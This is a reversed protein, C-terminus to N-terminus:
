HSLVVSSDSLVWDNESVCNKSAREEGGAMAETYSCWSIRVVVSVVSDESVRAHWRASSGSEEGHEYTGLGNLACEPGVKGSFGDCGAGSTPYVRSDLQRWCHDGGLTPASGAPSPGLAPSASMFWAETGGDGVRPISCAWLQFEIRRLTIPRVGKDTTAVSALVDWVTGPEGVAPQVGLRVSSRIRGANEDEEQERQLNKVRASTGMTLAVSTLTSALIGIQLVAKVRGSLVETM